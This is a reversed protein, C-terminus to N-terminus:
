RLLRKMYRARYKSLYVELPTFFVSLKHLVGCMFGTTRPYQAGFMASIYSVLDDIM